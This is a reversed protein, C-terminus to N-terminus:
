RQHMGVMCLGFTCLGSLPVNGLDAYAMTIGSNTSQTLLFTAM